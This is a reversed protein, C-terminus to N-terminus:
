SSSASYTITAGTSTHAQMWSASAPSWVFLTKAVDDWVVATTGGASGAYPPTATAAVWAITSCPIYTFAIRSSASSISNTAGGTTQVPFFGGIPPIPNATTLPQQVGSLIPGNVQNVARGGGIDGGASSTFVAGPFPM